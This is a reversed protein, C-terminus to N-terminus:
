LEVRNKPFAKTIQNFGHPSPHKLLIVCRLVVLCLCLLFHLLVRLRLRLRPELPRPLPLSNNADDHTVFGNDGNGGDGGRVRESM